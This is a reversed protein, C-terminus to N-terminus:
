SKTRNRYDLFMMSGRRDYHVFTKYLIICGAEIKGAKMLRRMLTYIYFPSYEKSHIDAANALLHQSGVAGGVKKNYAPTRYGSNIFIPSALWSRLVQLNTALQRVNFLLHEPVHTGDKCMFERISFNQTLQHNPASNNM